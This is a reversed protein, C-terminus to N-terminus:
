YTSGGRSSNSIRQVALGATLTCRRLVLLLMHVLDHAVAKAMQLQPQLLLPLHERACGRPMSRHQQWQQM